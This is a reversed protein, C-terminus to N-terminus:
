HQTPAPAAAGPKELKALEQKAHANQPNLDLSRQYNTKAREIDGADALGEAFSDYANWSKPHHVVNYEFVGVADKARGDQLLQYGWQNVYNESLHLEPHQRSVQGVTADVNQYGRQSLAQQLAALAPPDGFIGQRIRDSMEQLEGQTTRTSRNTLLVIGYHSDPYLDMFSAFGFTGGSHSLHRQSDVTEGIVWNFGVALSDVDGWLPQQTLKLAADGALLQAKTYRAMDDASYRLGGATLLYPPTYHPAPSGDEGYPTAMQATRASSVGSQMGLPREIYAALLTQYPKRYINEVITGVLVAAVNSHQPETGPKESPAVKHLDSFFAASSYNSLLKVALPLLKKPDTKKILESLDPLNDPLESTTSVLNSLTVPTGQFQLNPYKGPLYRRMDDSITAKNEILAHALLLSSFTKSISGIEYVTDKTPLQAKGRTVTGFNFFQVQGDRVLAISLGDAKGAKIFAAGEKEVVQGPDNPRAPADQSAVNTGLFLCLVGLVVATLSKTM